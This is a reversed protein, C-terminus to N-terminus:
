PCFILNLGNSLNFFAGGAAPDRYWCQFNWTSGNTIQGPAFPPNPYDVVQSALGTTTSVPSYRFLQGGICRFGNGFAVQAQGAGYFFICTQNSPLANCRLVLNNNSISLSGTYYMSGGSGVSNAAGICYTSSGGLDIYYPGRVSTTGWNGAADRARVGFYWGLGSEPLTTLFNTGTTDIITDPTPSVSHSWVYSYGSVGSDADSSANWAMRISGDCTPTNLSHTTSVLGTPASPAIQDVLIPGVNVYSANWNGSRDVPRLNFYMPTPGAVSSLYSTVAGIDQVTSPSGPANLSEFIGYGSLGSLNDTAATWSFNVNPNNSWVGPTHTTSHLGAPLAPPTGDVTVQVNANRDVWNDSRADVTFSKIGETTYRTTWTASRSTSYLVDGLTVDYGGSPNDLLNTVTGDQLTTSSAQLSHTSGSTDLFIASAVYEPNSATATFVVDQNPQLYQDNASLNLSGSPTTDGYIAHITVSMKVSGTVSDPYAKWRWVGDIPNNIIRIETNSSSSQQAFYEGSNGASDIPPSDLWLDWDSVLSSGAGASAAPEVYHMVAVIRTMEPTVTFDGFQFSSGSSLTLTNNVLVAFQANDYAAKYSNVRGAGYSDLHPDTQSSITQDDKTIATAMLLSATTAPRHRLYSWRDCLQGIVGTVHPAAMSTGSFNAYGNTTNAAVGRIWRGPAAVNPKWRGDGTPGRSSSTWITGPDGVTANNYDLVNGVTLANKASPEIRLTSAASGENGAAFVYMQDFTYVQTDVLRAQTETGIPIGAISTGWSCNIAMPRPTINTGDNFDNEFVDYVADMTWSCPSTGNLFRLSFFRGTGGWSALGSANGEQDAQAVGRGLISSAVHSGHGDSDAWAGGPSATCDWGVGWISLDQHSLDFGTDILGIVASENYSGDYVDSVRDSLIMARSEDHAMTPQGVLDLFQVFDLESISEILAAPVLARFALVEDVYNRVLAGRGELATQMWGNSQVRKPAGGTARPDILEVGSPSVLGPLGLVDITSAANLDSEFVNIWVDILESPATEELATVLAPHLKQWAEPLGVWRVSPLLAIQDLQQLPAAVKLSYHPHFGLVRAGLEELQAVREPTIRKQFMVFAYSDASPRGDAFGSEFTAILRPDILESESPRKDGAAFSLFFPDGSAELVLEDGAEGAVVNAGFPLPVSDDLVVPGSQGPGTIREPVERQPREITRLPSGDRVEVPVQPLEVPLGAEAQASARTSTAGGLVVLGLWLSTHKMNM